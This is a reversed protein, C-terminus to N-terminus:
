TSLLQLLKHHFLIGTIITFGACLTSDVKINKNCASCGNHDTVCLTYTGPLLGTATQVTQFPSSYWTYAYPAVGNSVMAAASGNACSGCTSNTVNASVFLNCGTLYCKSTDIPLFNVLGYNINVFGDFIKSRINNVSTDNWDNTGLHANASNNYRFNYSSNNFIKNCFISDLWFNIQLGVSNNTIINKSILNFGSQPNNYQFTVIGIGNNRISNNTIFGQNGMIGCYTNSDVVCSNIRFNEGVIGKYNKSITSQYVNIPFYVSAYANTDNIAEYCNRFTCNSINVMDVYDYFSIGITHNLFSCNLVNGRTFQNIGIGGNFKTNAIIITDHICNISVNNNTFNSNLVSINGMDFYNNGIGYSNNSFSSSDITIKSYFSTYFEFGLNNNSFNLGTFLLNSKKTWAGDLATKSNSITCHNFVITDPTILSIGQWSGSNGNFTIPLSATGNAILSAQRIEILVNQSCKVVVGPQITLTVGPFVVVTDTVIYPSNALTWTTNAYIGGSVNTQAQAPFYFAACVFLVAVLIKCFNKM